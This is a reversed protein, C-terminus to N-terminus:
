WYIEVKEVVGQRWFAGCAVKPYYTIELSKYTKGEEIHAIRDFQDSNAFAQGVPGTCDVYVLGEDTTQFANLAHGDGGGEFSVAVYAARIGAAEANNHLAEAFDTCKRMGALYRLQNTTDELIFSKLEAFSVNKTDPNDVLHVAGSGNLARCHGVWGDEDDFACTPQENTHQTVHEAQPAVNLLALLSVGSSDHGPSYSALAWLAALGGILLLLLVPLMSVKTTEKM